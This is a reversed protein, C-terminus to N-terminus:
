VGIYYAWLELPANLIRSQSVPDGEMLVFEVCAQSGNCVTYKEGIVSTFSSARACANTVDTSNM